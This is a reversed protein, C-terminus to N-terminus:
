KGQVPKAPVVQRFPLRMIPGRIARNFVYVGYSGPLAGLAGM